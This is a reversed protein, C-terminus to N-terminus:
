KKLAGEGGGSGLGPLEQVDLRAAPAPWVAWAGKDEAGEETRANGHPYVHPAGKRREGRMLSMKNKTCSCGKGEGNGLCGQGGRERGGCQGGHLDVGEGAADEVGVAKEKGGVSDQDICGLLSRCPQLALVVLDVEKQEGVAVDVVDPVGGFDLALVAAADGVVWIGEGHDCVGLEEAPEAEGPVDVGDLGSEGEFGGRGDGKLVEIEM